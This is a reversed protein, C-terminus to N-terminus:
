SCVTACLTAYSACVGQSLRTNARQIRRSPQGTQQQTGTGRSPCAGPQSRRVEQGHHRVFTQDHKHSYDPYKKRIAQGSVRFEREWEHSQAYEMNAKLNVVLLLVDINVGFAQVKTVMSKQLAVTDM